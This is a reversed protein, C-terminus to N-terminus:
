GGFAGKAIGRFYIHANQFMDYYRKLEDRDVESADLADQENSVLENMNLMHELADVTPKKEAKDCIGTYVAARVAKLGSKRMRSDLDSQRLATSVLMQGHLFKAALKEAEEVTCGEEYAGIIHNELEKCFDSVKM